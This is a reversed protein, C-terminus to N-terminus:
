SVVKASGKMGFAAHPDCVFRFAGTRAVKVKWTQSGVFAVKTKKNYGPAIIHVNHDASRDRVLVTYTGREMQQVKKGARTKFTIVQGPGSTVVVRTKSTIAPNAVPAPAPDSPPYTPTPYPDGEPPPYQGQIALSAGAGLLAVVALIVILAFTRTM